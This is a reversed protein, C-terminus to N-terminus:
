VTAACFAKLCHSSCSGRNISKLVSTSLSTRFSGESPRGGDCHVKRLQSKCLRPCKSFRQGMESYIVGRVVVGM